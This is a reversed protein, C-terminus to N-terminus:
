IMFGFNAQAGYAVDSKLKTNSDDRLEYYGVKGLLNLHFKGFNFQPGVGVGVYRRSDKVRYDSSHEIVSYQGELETTLAFAGVIKASASLGLSIGAEEHVNSDPLKQSIIGLKIKANESIRILLNLAGINTAESYRNQGFGLEFGIISEGKEKREEVIEKVVPTQVPPNQNLNIQPAQQMSAPADTGNNYFNFNYTPGQAFVATSFLFLIFVRKM